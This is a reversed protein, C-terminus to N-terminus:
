MRHTVMSFADKTICVDEPFIIPLNLRHNISRNIRYRERKCLKMIFRNLQLVDKPGNFCTWRILCFRILIFLIKLTKKTLNSHQWIGIWNCNYGVLRYRYRWYFTNKQLQGVYAKVGIDWMWEVGTWKENSNRSLLRQHDKKKYWNTLKPRHYRTSITPHSITQIGRLSFQEDIFVVSVNLYIIVFCGTTCATEMLIWGMIMMMMQKIRIAGKTGWWQLLRRYIKENRLSPVHSIVMEINTYNGLYTYSLVGKVLPVDWLWSALGNTPLLEAIWSSHSTIGTGPWEDCCTLSGNM